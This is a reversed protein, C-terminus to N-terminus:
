LNMWNWVKPEDKGFWDGTSTLYYHVNELAEYHGEEQKKLEEYFRREPDSGAKKALDTYFNYSDRELQMAARLVETNDGDRKLIDKGATEFFKKINIEIDPAAPATKGAPWSGAKEIAISIEDIKMIHNIEAQALSFITRRVLANKSATACKLYFELGKRELEYASILAQNM